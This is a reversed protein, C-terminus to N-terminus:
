AYKKKNKSILVIILCWFVILLVFLACVLIANNIAFSLLNGIFPIYHTVIGFVDSHSYLRSSIQNSIPDYVEVFANEITVDKTSYIYMIDCGETEKGDVIVAVPRNLNETYESTAVKKSIILAGEKITDNGISIDRLQTNFSVGGIDAGNNLFASTFCGLLFTVVTICLMIISIIKGALMGGKSKKKSSKIYPAPEDYKEKEEDDAHKSFYHSSTDEEPASYKIDPTESSYVDLPEETIVPTEVEAPMTDTKIMEPIFSVPAAKPQPKKVRINQVFDADFEEISIIRFENM